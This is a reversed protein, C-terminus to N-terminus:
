KKRKSKPLSKSNEEKYQYTGSLVSPAAEYEKNKRVSLLAEIKKKNALFATILTLFTVFIIPMYLGAPNAADQGEYLGQFVAYIFISVALGALHFCSATKYMNLMLLVTGTIYCVVSNILWVKIIYHESIAADVIDNFMISLPAFIGFIIGCVSTMILILVKLIRIAIKM